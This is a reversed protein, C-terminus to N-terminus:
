LLVIQLWTYIFEIGLGVDIGEIFGVLTEQGKKAGSSIESKLTLLRGPRPGSGSFEQLVHKLISVAYTREEQLAILSQKM